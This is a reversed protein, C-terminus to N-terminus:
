WWYNMRKREEFTYPSLQRWYRRKLLDPAGRRIAELRAAPYGLPNGYTDQVPRLRRYRRVRSWTRALAWWRRPRLFYAVARPLDLLARLYILPEIESKLLLATNYEVEVDRESALREQLRQSAENVDCDLTPRSAWQSWRWVELMRALEEDTLEYADLRGYRIFASLDDRYAESM